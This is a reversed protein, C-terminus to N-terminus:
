FAIELVLCKKEICEACFFAHLFRLKKCFGHVLGKQFICIQPSKIDVNRYDIFKKKELVEGFVKEAHMKCLILLHFFRLKECVSHVLGMPFICIKPSM